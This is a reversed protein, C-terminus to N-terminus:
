SPPRRRRRPLIRQAVEIPDGETWRAVAELVVPVMRRTTKATVAAVFPEDLFSGHSARLEDLGLTPERRLALAARLARHFAFVEAMWPEVRGEERAADLARARAVIEGLDMTDLESLVGPFSTALERLLERSAPHMGRAHECRLQIMRRYKESLDELHGRDLGIVGRRSSM